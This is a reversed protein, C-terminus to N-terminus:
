GSLCSACQILTPSHRQSCPKSWKARWAHNRTLLHGRPMTVMSSPSRPRLSRCSKQEGTLKWFFGRRGVHTVLCFYGDPFVPKEHKRGRKDTLTVYDPQARFSTEDIWTELVFGHQRAALTVAVRVENVTLLHEILQWGLTARKPLRLQSRDYGFREVLTYAGRKGLTYLAPSSAPAGSVASLFHRELFEHQYLKALRSQGTSQSGFFLAEIQDTRLARCDNVMRIIECDRETLQMPPREDEAVRRHRPLRPRPSNKNM